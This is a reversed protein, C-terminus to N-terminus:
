VSPSVRKRTTSTNTAKQPKGNKDEEKELLKRGQSNDTAGAPSEISKQSGDDSKRNNIGLLAEAEQRLLKLTLRRNWTLLTKGAEHERLVRETWQVAKDLWQTAKDRQGLRHHSMALLYWTYAPSFQVAADPDGETMRQIAEEFRGARYLIGGLTNLYSTDKPNTQLAKDALGIAPSLDAVAQPALACTWATFHM